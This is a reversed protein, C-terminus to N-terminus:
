LLIAAVVAPVAFRYIVEEDLAAGLLAFGDALHGERDLLILSVVIGAIVSVWFVAAADLDRARGAIRRGLLGAIVFAPIVSPSVTFRGVDIGPIIRMLGLIEVVAALLSLGLVVKQRSRTLPRPPPALM